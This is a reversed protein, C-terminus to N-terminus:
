LKTSDMDLSKQRIFGAKPYIQRYVKVRISSENTDNTRMGSFCVRFLQTRKRGQKQATGYMHVQQPQSSGLLISTPNRWSLIEGIAYKGSNAL